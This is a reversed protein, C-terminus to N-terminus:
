GHTTALFQSLPVAYQRALSLAERCAAVDAATGTEWGTVEGAPTYRYWIVSAHDTDGDFLVFDDRLRDLSPDAARDAILIEEGAAANELYAAEIEYRVYDSLPLDIVHIRGIRRGSALTERIIQVTASKEPRSPLPLGELFARQREEDGPVAYHQLTELRVAEATFSRYAGMLEEGTM